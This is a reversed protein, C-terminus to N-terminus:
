LNLLFESWLNLLEKREKFYDYHNYVERIRNKDTHQLSIEIVEDSINHERQIYERTLSAFTHRIGHLSQYSINYKQAIDKQFKRLSTESIPKTKLNSSYFVYDGAKIKELEKFTALAEDGLPIKIDESKVKLNERPIFLTRNEFDIHEWKILRTTGQRLATLWIIRIAGKVIVRNSLDKLENFYIKVEELGTIHPYHKKETTQFIQKLDIDRIINHQIYEKSIAFTFIGNLISKLKEATPRNVKKFSSYIDKISIKSIDKGKFTPIIHSKVRQLTKSYTNKAKGQQYLELWENVVNEFNRNIRTKVEEKKAIIAEFGYFIIENKLKDRKVRAEKLSLTPYDGLKFVKDKSEKRYRYYWNKSGRPSIELYLGNDDYLKYKKDKLKAKKVQLETLKM